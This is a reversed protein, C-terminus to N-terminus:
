AKKTKMKKKYEKNLESPNRILKERSTREKSNKTKHKNANVNEIVNIIENYEKKHHVLLYEEGNLHSYKEIIKM